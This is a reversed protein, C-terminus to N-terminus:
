RGVASEFGVRPHIVVVSGIPTFGAALFARLSAANGPSVHAFLPMADPALGRAAAILQRGEGRGRADDPLEIGIEWQGGLGRGITVVGREDGFVQVDRRIRRSARVRPHDDFAHTAPPAEVVSPSAAPAVLVVDLCGIPRDGALWLLFEPSTAGGFGDAGNARADGAPVDAQVYAHGTLALVAPLEGPPVPTLDVGGDAPPFKGAAADLLVEGLM